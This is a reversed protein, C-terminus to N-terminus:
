INQIFFVGFYCDFLSMKVIMELSWVKDSKSEPFAKSSIQMFLSLVESYSKDNGYLMIEGLQKIM